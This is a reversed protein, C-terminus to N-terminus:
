IQLPHRCADTHTDTHLLPLFALRIEVSNPKRVGFRCLSIAHGRRGSKERSSAIEQRDFWRRERAFMESVPCRIEVSNLSGTGSTPRYLVCATDVLGPDICNNQGSIQSWRTVHERIIHKDVAYPAYKCLYPFKGM